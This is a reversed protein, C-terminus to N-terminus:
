AETVILANKLRKAVESGSENVMCLHRPGPATNKYVSILVRFARFRMPAVRRTLNRGEAEFSGQVAVAVGSPEARFTTSADVSTCGILLDASEGQKIPTRFDPLALGQQARVLAESALFVVQPDSAGAALDAATVCSKPEPKAESSPFATGFLGVKFTEVIQSAWRIPEDNITVEKLPRGGPLSFVARLIHGSATGREVKWCDAAKLGKPFDYVSFDPDQIYLGVPNTLSVMHNKLAITNVQFNITPDSNRYPVGALNCCILSQPNPGRLTRLVTADAALVIEASLNNPDSTLHMAGGSDRLLVTGSNWKNLKNYEHTDKVCLDELRVASSIYKQYLSCVINPDIDWLSSWYELNECTFTARTIEGSGNHEVAWECYEDQWGRPGGPQYPEWESKPQRWDLGPCDVTPVDPFGDRFKEVSAIKGLDALEALQEHSLGFPSDDGFFVSLRNPFADWEIKASLASSPIDTKLPNYYLAPDSQPAIRGIARSTYFDLRQSWLDLLKQYDKTNGGFDNIDAPTSFQKLVQALRSM